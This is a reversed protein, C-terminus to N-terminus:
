KVCHLSHVFFYVSLALSIPHLQILSNNIQLVSHTTDFAAAFIIFLTLKLTMNHIIQFFRQWHVAQDTEVQFMWLYCCMIRRREVEEYGVRTLGWKFCSCITKHIVTYPFLYMPIQSFHLQVLLIHYLCIKLYLILFFTNYMIYCSNHM